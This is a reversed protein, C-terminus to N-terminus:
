PTLREWRLTVSQDPVFGVVHLKAVLNFQPDNRDTIRLVYLHDLAVRAHNPVDASELLRDADPCDQFAEGSGSKGRIAFRGDRLHVSSFGQRGPVTDGYGFHLRLEEATGLDVIRGSQGGQIGVTFEGPNYRGFDFHSDLNRLEHGQGTGGPEGTLLSVTCTEGDLLRLTALGGTVPANADAPANDMRTGDAAALLLLSGCAVLSLTQVLKM